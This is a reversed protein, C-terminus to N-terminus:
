QNIKMVQPYLCRQYISIYRLSISMIRDIFTVYIKNIAVTIIKIITVRLKMMICIEKTRKTHIEERRDVCWMISSLSVFM